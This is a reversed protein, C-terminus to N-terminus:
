QQAAYRWWAVTGVSGIIGTFAVIAISVTSLVGDSLLLAPITWPTYASIGISPAFNVVLLILFIIGIPALYSKTVNAVFSCLTSIFMFLLSVIMFVLFNNMILSVTGETLGAGAGILILVVYMLVSMLTNWLFAVIFKSIAIHLKPIPKVMLDNITKDTYERGFVWCTTFSFGLMLLMVLIRLSDGLYSDWSIIEGRTLMILSLGPLFTFAIIVAWFVSSKYVKRIECFVLSLINM